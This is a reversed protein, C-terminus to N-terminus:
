DPYRIIIVVVESGDGFSGSISYRLHEKGPVAAMGGYSWDGFEEGAFGFFCTSLTENKLGKGNM